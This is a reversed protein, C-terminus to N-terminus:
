GHLLGQHRYFFASLSFGTGSVGACSIRKDMSSVRVVGPFTCLSLDTTSTGSCNVGLPQLRSPRRAHSPSPILLDETEQISVARVRRASRVTLDTLSTGPGYRVKLM